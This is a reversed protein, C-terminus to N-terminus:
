PADRRATIMAALREFLEPEASAADVFAALGIADFQLIDAALRDALAHEFADRSMAARYRWAVGDKERQLLGKGFLRDMTTMITTYARNQGNYALIDCVDRVTGGDQAWAVEMVLTELEGLPKMSDDEPGLM